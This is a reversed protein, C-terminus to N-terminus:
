RVAPIQEIVPMRGAGTHEAVATVAAARASPRRQPDALPPGHSGGSADVRRTGVRNVRADRDPGGCNVTSGYGPFWGGSFSVVIVTIRVVNLFTPREMAM